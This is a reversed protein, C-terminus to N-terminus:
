LPIITLYQRNRLLKVWKSKVGSTLNILISVMSAQSLFKVLFPIHYKVILALYDRQKSKKIQVELTQQLKEVVKNAVVAFSLKNLLYAKSEAKLEYEYQMRCAKIVAEGQTYCGTTRTIFSKGIKMRVFWTNCNDLQFIYLGRALSFRFIIKAMKAEFVPM